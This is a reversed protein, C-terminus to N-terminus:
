KKMLEYLLDAIRHNVIASAHNDNKGVARKEAPIDALHDALKITAINNQKLFLEVPKTYSSSKDINKLFPVMVVYLKIKRTKAYDIFKKLDRLHPNIITTDTYAKQVYDSISAPPVHPFQWYIYNPFYFRMTLMTLLSSKIDDYPKFEALSLKADTAAGFVDNPFYELILADPNQVPFNVLKKYEDRTDLGSIGLNYVVYKDTGMKQELQDSFRDSVNELGHGAAFSDGVVIIKKKNETNTKPAGRYGEDSVPPWYRAFWIQSAKSLAGEHSQSVYMFIVELLVTVSFLMTLLTGVNAVVKNLKPNKIIAYYFIRLVEIWVLLLLMTKALRIYLNDFLPKFQYNFDIHLKDPFFVFLFVFSLLGLRVISSITKSAM